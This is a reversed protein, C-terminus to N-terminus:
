KFWGGRRFGWLLLITILVMAGLVMPYAHPLHLEPMTDFNMGYISSILTLPMFVASIVTLYRLRRNGVEQLTISYDHSMDRIRDELRTVSGEFHKATRSFDAMDSCIEELECDECNALSCVEAALALDEVTSLLHRVRHKMALVDPDSLEDPACFLLDEIRNALERATGFNQYMQRGIRRFVELVLGATSAYVLPEESLTLLPSLSPM